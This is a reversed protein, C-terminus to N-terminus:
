QIFYIVGNVVQYQAGTQMAGAYHPDFSSYYTFSVQGISKIKGSFAKDDFSSYYNLATIGLSKLKGKLAENDFNSFYGLTTNGIDKIKGRYAEDDYKMYYDFMLGGISKVKGRLTEDEYSAYYTIATQGLYKVKGRYSADDFDTFMDVRGTYPEVRTYNSNRESAYEVGYNIINGDPSLNIVADNTQISIMITAGSGSLTVKSIRQASVFGSVSLFLIALFYKM